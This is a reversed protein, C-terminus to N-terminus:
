YPVVGAPNRRCFVKGAETLEMPQNSRDFLKVNDKQDTSLFKELSQIRQTVPPQSLNLRRAAESVNNGSRVVEMFYLIQRLELDRLERLPPQFSM